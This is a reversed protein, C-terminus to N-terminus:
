LHVEADNNGFFEDQDRMDEMHERQADHFQVDAIIPKIPPFVETTM